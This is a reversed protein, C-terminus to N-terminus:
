KSVSTEKLQSNLESIKEYLAQAEDTKGEKYLNNADEMMKEIKEEINDVPELLGNDILEKDSVNKNRLVFSNFEQTKSSLSDRLNKTQKKTVLIARSFVPDIAVFDIKEESTTDDVKEETLSTIQSVSDDTLKEEVVNDDLSDAPIVTTEEKAEPTEEAVSSAVIEQPAISQEVVPAIVDTTESVVESANVEDEAPTIVDTTESVVESANVEDEAPTIVDTTESVVESANVEDETPAIVDTTESVVESASVEDEAPTIVDTTESVIESANVEDEAPTIVDTTENDIEPTSIENEVPVIEESSETSENSIITSDNNASSEIIDQSVKENEDIMNGTVNEEVPTEVIEQPISTEDKVNDISDSTETSDQSISNIYSNETENVITENEQNANMNENVQNEVTEVPNEFSFTNDIVSSNYDFQSFISSLDNALLTMNTICNKQNNYLEVGKSIDTGEPQNNLIEAAKSLKAEENAIIDFITLKM